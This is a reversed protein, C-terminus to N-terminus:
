EQSDTVPRITHGYYRSFGDVGYRDPFMYLDHSYYNNNPISTNPTSTWYVGYIRTDITLDEKRYGAAPLFIYKGNAGTVKYGPVGNLLIFNWTCKNVLEEMETKTPIRWSSGWKAAAVDYAPKGSIDLMPKGTTVSNNETYSSKTELEGWAYYGGYDGVSNAGINQSAWKLGSPLGLDVWEYGNLTGSYHDTLTTFSKEEGYSTGYENTAYARVYYTTNKKLNTIDSVFSGLGKGDVLHNDEITPNSFSSWCVGRASVERGKENMVEGGCIASTATIATVDATTVVPVGIIRDEPIQLDEKICSAFAFLVILQLLRKINM